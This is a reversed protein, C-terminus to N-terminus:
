DDCVHVNKAGICATEGNDSFYIIDDEHYLDDDYKSDVQIVPVIHDYDTDGALLKTDGYFLYQNM